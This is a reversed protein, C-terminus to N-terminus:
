DVFELRFLSEAWIELWIDHLRRFKFTGSALWLDPTHMKMKRLPQQGYIPQKEIENLESKRFLPGSEQWDCHNLERIYKPGM